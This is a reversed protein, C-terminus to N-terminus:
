FGLVVGAGATLIREGNIYDRYTGNAMIGIKESLQFTIGVQASAGLRYGSQYTVGIIEEGRSIGDPIIYHYNDYLFSQYAASPGIGIGINMWNTIKLKVNPMASVYFGSSVYTLPLTTLIGVIATDGKVRMAQAYAFETNFWLWNNLKQNYGMSYGSGTQQNHPILVYNGTLSIEHKSQGFSTTLICLTLVSLAVIKTM